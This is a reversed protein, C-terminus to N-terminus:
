AFVAEYLLGDSEEAVPVLFLDHTAGDPLEVKCINQDLRHEKPAKWVVSFQNAAEDDSEHLSTVEVLEASVSTDDDPRLKCQGNLAAKFTEISYTAM